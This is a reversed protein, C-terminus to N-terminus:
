GTTTSFETFAHMRPCTHATVPSAGTSPGTANTFTDSPTPTPIATSPLSTRPAFLMAPSNPWTASLMYPGSHAHPWRPHQSAYTDFRAIVARYWPVSADHDPEDSGSPGLTLSM